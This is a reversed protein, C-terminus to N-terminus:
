QYDKIVLQIKQNGGFENLGLSVALQRPTNKEFIEALNWGVIELDSNLNWKLHKEKM